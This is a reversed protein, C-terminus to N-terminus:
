VQATALVMTRSDEVSKGRGDRDNAGTSALPFAVVTHASAELELDASGSQKPHARYDLHETTRSESSSRSWSRSKSRGWSTLQTFLGGMWASVLGSLFPLCSTMLGLCAEIMSWSLMTTVTRNLDYGANLGTYTVIIYITM